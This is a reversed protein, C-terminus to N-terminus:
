GGEGACTGSFTVAGAQLATVHATLFMEGTPYISILGTMDEQPPILISVVGEAFAGTDPALASTGVLQTDEMTIVWGEGQQRILVQGGAFAECGSATCEEVLVCDYAALAPTPLLALAALFVRM